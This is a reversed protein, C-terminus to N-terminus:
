DENMQLLEIDNMWGWFTTIDPTVTELNVRDVSFVTAEQRQYIPVEVAWDIIIDLAAKYTQKRFDQDDTSRAKIILDDLDPDDIHYHNSESSGPLGIINSSHYVQYMDPDITAGWAACWIEQSGSNLADWLVNSDTPDNIILNIGISDFSAKAETLLKFSPHDGDGDGPIIVEYELSAGEPAATLKGSAEDYTYGAAVFYDIAAKQAAEYKAEANMDSTYIASGNLAESFAVKYGADSPQPAAWSTNSIPYNIVSARDGYYSDVTLDRYVALITAIGTRLNRSAESNAEGAVNITDANMGIYGYGLFDVTVTDIKDGSLDNNSNYNKIADIAKDNFSPDTVDITGTIIGSVKDAESTEKFQINTIIPEGKYYFENAEFYVVKNEYKIFKYPGAGVPQTTKARHGSLDGFDFGFKNNDYDYKAPDGYYSLPAVQIGMKYIATADFGDLTVEITTDNLKKLGSINDVGKGGMAEDKPGWEGIFAIKGNDYVSAGSSGSEESFYMIADGEYALFAENYFDEATPYEDASLNWSEGTFSGTLVNDEDIKGFGYLTMSFAVQRGDNELIEDATYNTVAEAYGMYNVIIYDVVGRQIDEIWYGKLLEWASDQQEETWADNASWKHDFGAEMIGSYLAEYKDFVDSTTQTRYDNLGQIAVSNLTTPGVYNPDIYSYYTFIIDDATMLEGNSFHVDDRITWTYVTKDTAEDYDVKVNAIGNYFYDKEAYTTTEGEIANFIIAGARDTTLLSTSTLSVVDNDYATEAFFQSFKESFPAYGVVLPTSQHLVPPETEEPPETTKATTAAATTTASESQTTSTKPACAAFLGVTMAFMLLLALLKIPKNKM